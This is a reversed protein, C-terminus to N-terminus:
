RDAGSGGKTTRLPSMRPRPIRRKREKRKGMKMPTVACQLYSLLLSSLGFGNKGFIWGCGDNDSGGSQARAEAKAREAEAECRGSCYTFSSSATSKLSDYERGCWKCRRLM